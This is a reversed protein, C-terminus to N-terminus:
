VTDEVSQRLRAPARTFYRAWLAEKRRASIITGNAASSRACSAKAGERRNRRAQPLHGDAAQQRGPTRPMSQGVNAYRSSRSRPASADFLQTVPSLRSEEWLRTPAFFNRRTTMLSLGNVQKFYIPSKRSACSRRFVSPVPEVAGEDVVRSDVANSGEVAGGLRHKVPRILEFTCIWCSRIAPFRDLM